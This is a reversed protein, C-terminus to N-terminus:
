QVYMDDRTEWENFVTRNRIVRSNVSMLDKRTEYTWTRTKLCGSM